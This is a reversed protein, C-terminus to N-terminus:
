FLVLSAESFFIGSSFFDFFFFFEPYFGFNGSLKGMGCFSSIELVAKSHLLFLNQLSFVLGVWSCGIVGHHFSQNPIEARGVWINGRDAPSPDKQGFGPAARSRPLKAGFPHM